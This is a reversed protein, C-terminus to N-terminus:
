VKRGERELYNFRDRPTDIDLAGFEGKVTKTGVGNRRNPRTSDADAKHAPRLWSARGDRSGPQPQDHAALTAWTDGTKWNL